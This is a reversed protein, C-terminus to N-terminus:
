TYGETKKSINIMIGVAAMSVALATGGASVFPLPVGTIPLLGVMAGINFCAQIAFWSIIGTALLKGFPDPAQKAIKLGRFILFLFLIVFLACIAFGLEEAFVAFISDGSAEPLYLFKQRSHGFGRGWLGGSGVALFAQNIHYGVGLPDLEPHLFTTLRAARYPTKILFYIATAGLAVLGMVHKLKAGSAFFVAMCMFIIISLTGLDPQAIILGSIIALLFVFPLFGYYFDRVGSEGRKELWTTLYLLFTLKVLESPQFSLGAINIWSKASGYKASIGPIFVIILLIISFFLLPISFKKLKQYNIKSFILLLALGPLLGFLLQHKIFYYSDNFKEYGLASGASTLIILGILTLLAFVIIFVFDPKHGTATTGDKALRKNKM